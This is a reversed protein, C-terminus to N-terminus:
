PEKKDEFLIILEGRIFSVTGILFVAGFLLVEFTSKYSELRQLLAMVDVPLWTVYHLLHVSVSILSILGIFGVLSAIAHIAFRIWPLFGEKFTDKYVSHNSAQKTKKTKKPM